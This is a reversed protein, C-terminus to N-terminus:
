RRRAVRLGLGLPPLNRFLGMKWLQRTCSGCLWEHVADGRIRGREHELVHLESSVWPQERNSRSQYVQRHEHPEAEPAHRLVNSNWESRLQSQHSSIICESVSHFAAKGLFGM